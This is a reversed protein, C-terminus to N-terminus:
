FLDPLIKEVDAKLRANTTYDNLNKILSIRFDEQTGSTNLEELNNDYKRKGYFDFRNIVDFANGEFSTNSCTELKKLLKKTEPAKKLESFIAEFKKLRNETIKKGYKFGINPDSKLQMYNEIRPSEGDKLSIMVSPLYLSNKSMKLNELVLTLSNITTKWSLLNFDAMNMVTDILETYAIRNILNNSVKIIKECSNKEGDMRVSKSTKRTLVYLPVEYFESEYALDELMKTLFIMNEVVIEGDSNVLKFFKSQFNEFAEDSMMYFTKETWDDNSISFLLKKSTEIENAFEGAECLEFLRKAIRKASGDFSLYHRGEEDKKLYISGPEMRFFDLMPMKKCGDMRFSKGIYKFYEAQHVDILKNNTHSDIYECVKKLEKPDTGSMYFSDKYFEEKIM